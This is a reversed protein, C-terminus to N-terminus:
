LSPLVDYKDLLFYLKGDNSPYFSFNAWLKMEGFSAQPIKLILDSSLTATSCNNSTNTGYGTVEFLMRNAYDPTFKLNAWLSMGNFTLSPINISIDQNVSIIQCSTTTTTPTSPIAIVNVTSFFGITIIIALQSTLKM